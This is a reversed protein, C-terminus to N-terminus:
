TLSALEKETKTVWGDSWSTRDNIVRTNEKYDAPM